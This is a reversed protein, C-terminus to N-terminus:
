RKARPCAADLARYKAVRGAAGVARAAVAGLGPWTFSVHVAGDDLPPDAIVAVLTVDTGPQQGVTVTRGVVDTTGFLALAANTPRQSPRFYVVIENVERQKGELNIPTTEAGSELSQEFM